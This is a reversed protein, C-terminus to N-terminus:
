QVEPPNQDNYSSERCDGYSPNTGSEGDTSKLTGMLRVRTGTQHLSRPLQVSDSPTPPDGVDQDQQPEVKTEGQNTSEDSGPKVPQRNPWRKIGNRRCARKLTTPCIGLKAAAEKLGLKFHKQLDDYTLHKGSGMKGRRKKRYKNGTLVHLLEELKAKDLTQSNDEMQLSTSAMVGERPSLAHFMSGPSMNAMGILGPVEKEGLNFACSEKQSPMPSTSAIPYDLSPYLSYNSQLPHSQCGNFLSNAPIGYADAGLFAHPVNMLEPAENYCYDMLPLMRSDANSAEKSVLSPGEPLPVNEDVAGEENQVTFLDLGFDFCHLDADAPWQKLGEEIQNLNVDSTCLRVAELSAIVRELLENFSANRDNRVVEIVGLTRSRVAPEFFPIVVTSHVRCRQAESVRLYIKKDYKQVDGCIEPESTTYVRGIAGLLRPQMVDTSFSFRCSICRFLALLDGVGAVAYPLGQTSLVTKSNGSVEPLWVQILSGNRSDSLRNNLDLVLAACQDRLTSSRM